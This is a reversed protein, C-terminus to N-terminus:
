DPKRYVTIGSIYGTATGGTILRGRLKHYKHASPGVYLWQKTSSGSSLGTFSPYDAYNSTGIGTVVNKVTDWTVFDDDSGQLLWQGTATGTIRTYTVYLHADYGASKCEFVVYGTDTNALTDNQTTIVAGTANAVKMNQKLIEGNQAEAFLTCLVLSGLFLMKKM